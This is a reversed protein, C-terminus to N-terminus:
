SLSKARVRESISIDKELDTLLAESEKSEKTVSLLADRLKVRVSESADPHGKLFTKASERGHGIREDNISYWGVPYAEWEWPM